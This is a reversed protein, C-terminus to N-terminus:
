IGGISVIVRHEAAVRAFQAGERGHVSRVSGEPPAVGAAARQVVAADPAVLGRALEGHGIECGGFERVPDLVGVQEAEDLTVAPVTVAGRQEVREVERLPGDYGREVRPPVSEGCGWRPVLKDALGDRLFIIVRRFLVVHASDEVKGVIALTGVLGCLLNSLTECFNVAASDGVFYTGLAKTRGTRTQGGGDGERFYM